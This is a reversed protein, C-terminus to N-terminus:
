VTAEPVDSPAAKMGPKMPIDSEPVGVAKGFAVLAERNFHEVKAAKEIKHMMAKFATAVDFTQLLSAEPKCSYWKVTAATALQEATADKKEKSVVFPQTDKTKESTNVVLTSYRMMYEALANRRSGKPMAFWLRNMLGNDRNAATHELIAHATTQILEDLKAGSTTISKINKEVQKIDM